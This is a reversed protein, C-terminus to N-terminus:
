PRSVSRRTSASRKCCAFGTSPSSAVVRCPWTAFIVRDAAVRPSSTSLTVSSSTRFSSSSSWVASWTTPPKTTPVTASSTSGTLSSCDASTKPSLCVFAKVEGRFRDRVRAHWPLVDHRSAKGDVLRPIRRLRRSPSPKLSRWARLPSALPVCLGARSPIAASRLVQPSSLRLSSIPLCDSNFAQNFTSRRTRCFNRFERISCEKEADSEESPGFGAM